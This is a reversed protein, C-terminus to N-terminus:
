LIIPNCHSDVVLQNITTALNLSGSKVQDLDYNAGDTQM